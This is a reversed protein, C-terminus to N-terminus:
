PLPETSPEGAPLAQEHRAAKVAARVSREILMPIFDRIPADHFRERAGDIAADITHHETTACTAHLRKRVHQIAQDEADDAPM